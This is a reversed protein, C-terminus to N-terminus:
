GNSIIGNEYIGDIKEFVKISICMTVVSIWYIIGIIAFLNLTMVFRIIFILSIIGILIMSWKPIMVRNSLLINEGAMELYKKRKIINNIDIFLSVPAILHAFILM